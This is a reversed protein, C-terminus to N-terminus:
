RGELKAALEYALWSLKLLRDPHLRLNQDVQGVYVVAEGRLLQRLTEASFFSDNESQYHSTSDSGKGREIILGHPLEKVPQGLVDQSQIVERANRSKSV